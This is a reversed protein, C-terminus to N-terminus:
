LFSSSHVRHTVQRIVLAGRIPLPRERGRSQELQAIMQLRAFAAAVFQASAL